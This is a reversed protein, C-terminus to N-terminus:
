NRATTDNFKIETGVHIGIFIFNYVFMSHKKGINLDELCIVCEGNEQQLVDESIFIMM